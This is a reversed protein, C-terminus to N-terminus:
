LEYSLFEAKKTEARTAWHYLVGKTLTLDRTWDEDRAKKKLLFLLTFDLTKALQMLQSYEVLIENFITVQM